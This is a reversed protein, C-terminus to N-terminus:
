TGKKKKLQNKEQYSARTMTQLARVYLVVEWTQQDTLKKGYGPMTRIGNQIIDYLESDSKKATSDDLINSVVWGNKSIISKTGDGTKTHCASCYINYQKQGNRLFYEDIVYSSLPKKLKSHMYPVTNDPIEMPTTQPNVKPQFDFNINPHIPPKESRWGRCGSLIIAVLLFPIIKKMKRRNKRHSKGWM